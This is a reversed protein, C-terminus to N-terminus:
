DYLSGRDDEPIALKWIHLVEGKKPQKRISVWHNGLFKKNVNESYMLSKITPINASIRIENAKRGYPLNYARYENFIFKMIFFVVVFVILKVVFSVTKQLKM